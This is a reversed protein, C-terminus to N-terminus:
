EIMFDASIEAVVIGLKRIINPLTHNIKTLTLCALIQGAIGVYLCLSVAAFNMFGKDHLRATCTVAQHNADGDKSSRM